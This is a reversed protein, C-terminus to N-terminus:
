FFKLIKFKFFHALTYEAHIFVPARRATDCPSSHCLSPDTHTLPPPQKSTTQKKGYERRHVNEEERKGRVATEKKQPKNIEEDGTDSQLKYGRAVM